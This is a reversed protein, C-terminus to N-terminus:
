LGAAVFAAWTDFFTRTMPPPPRSCAITRASAREGCDGSSSHAGPLAPMAASARSSGIPTPSISASTAAARSSCTSRTTTPGSAGSTSPSTSASPAAPIAAKPGLAAHARSSPEFAKEFSTISAAPTGVAAWATTVVTSSPIAATM